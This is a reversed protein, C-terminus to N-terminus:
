RDLRLHVEGADLATRGGGALAVVLRGTGDVGEARGEGGSWAIARGRLADRARWADLTREAPEGLRWQLAALLEQLAPEVERPQRGLTAATSHLEPPLEEVRVAVNLGVGLVAWGQQPRGEALIGAVKALTGAEGEGESPFVVDNPWKIQAQEGAVDCVALAAILPLLTPPRESEPWRLLLSMLLASHPPASWRRGQRGRGATQEAATVLTGHPAGALALERARDNTSDTRRLHIRPRGLPAAQASIARRQDGPAGPGASM